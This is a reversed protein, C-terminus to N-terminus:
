AALAPTPAPARGPAPTEPPSQAAARALALEADVQGAPLRGSLFSALVRQEALSLRHVVTPAAKSGMVLHNRRGRTQDQL